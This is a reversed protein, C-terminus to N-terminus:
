YDSDSICKGICRIGNQSSRGCYNCIIPDKSKQDLQTESKPQDKLEESNSDYQTLSDRM